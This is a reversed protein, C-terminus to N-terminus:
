HQIGRHPGPSAAQIKRAESFHFDSEEKRGQTALALGLNYHAGANGPDVKLADSFQAIAKDIKGQKAFVIGLNNHADAHGPEIRLVEAYHAIAEDFRGQEDFAMGLNYHTISSDPNLKLATTFHTIAKATQGEKALLVGLNTHASAEDPSLRLVGEYQAIADKTRGQLSFIHAVKYHASIVNQDIPYKQSSANGSGIRIVEHYHALAEDLKGQKELYYALSHHIKLNDPTFQLAKRYYDIADDIKERRVSSNALLALVDYSNDKLIHYAQLLLNYGEDLRGAWDLTRGLTILSQARKKPDVRQELTRTVVAIAEENWQPGPSAIGHRAVQDLLALGLMRYGDITTHVHDLFHENGPISHGYKRFCDDEVLKVFDLLPVNDEKAVEHIATSMLSLIRLPCIDEDVARQFSARAEDFRKLAFLIQGTRFHLDAHRDDISLAETFRALAEGPKGAERLKKGEDYLSTWRTKESETMGVRNESKFPPMDKLNSAPTVLIIKSGASKAITVMRQLNFRYHTIIEKKLEDDRTYSTPGVTRNLIEEVEAKMTDSKEGPKMRKKSVADFMGAMVTYIRTGALAVKTRVVWEPMDKIKRYTREELFENQGSYVIFLDPQYQSLEYMLNAVRYSAYSIGGANIVEWNKSPDASGLFERLWGCFSTADDFPHGYTTSGGMCFIRFSNKSKVKPFQQRNFTHLKNEATSLMVTGDPQVHEVFLPVNGAFGVFPDGTLLLPKVGFVALFFETGALFLTLTLIGFLVKKRVSLSAAKSM